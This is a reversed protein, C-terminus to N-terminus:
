VEKLFAGMLINKSSYKIAIEFKLNRFKMNMEM